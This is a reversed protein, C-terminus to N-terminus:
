PDLAGRLFAHGRSPCRCGVCDKESSKGEDLGVFLSTTHTHRFIEVTEEKERGKERQFVYLALHESYCRVRVRCGEARKWVALLASFFFPGGRHV